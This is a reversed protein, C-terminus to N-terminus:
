EPNYQELVGPEYDWVFDKKGNDAWQCILDDIQVVTMKDDVTICEEIAYYIKM